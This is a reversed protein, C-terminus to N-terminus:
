CVTAAATVGSLWQSEALPAGMYGKTHSRSLAKGRPAPESCSLLGGSHPVLLTLRASPRPCCTGEQVCRPSDRSGQHEPSDM